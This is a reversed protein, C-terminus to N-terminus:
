QATPEVEQTLFDFARNLASRPFSQLLPDPLDATNVAIM